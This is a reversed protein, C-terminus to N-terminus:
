LVFFIKGRFICMEFADDEAELSLKLGIRNGIITIFDLPCASFLIGNKPRGISWRYGKVM